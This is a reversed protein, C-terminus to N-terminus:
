AGGQFRTLKVCLHVALLYFPHEGLPLAAPPADLDFRALVFPMKQLVRTAISPPRGDCLTTDGINPVSGYPKPVVVFLKTAPNLDLAGKFLENVAPCLVNWFVILM